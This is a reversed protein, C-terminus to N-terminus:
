PCSASYASKPCLLLCMEPAVFGFPDRIKSKQTSYACKPRLLLCMESNPRKVLLKSLHVFIRTTRM